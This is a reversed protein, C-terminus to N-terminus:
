PIIQLVPRELISYTIIVIDRDLGPLDWPNITKLGYGATDSLKGWVILDYSQKITEPRSPRVLSIKNLFSFQPTM